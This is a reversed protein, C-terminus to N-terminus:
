DDGMLLLLLVTLAVAGLLIFFVVAWSLPNLLDDILPQSLPDV